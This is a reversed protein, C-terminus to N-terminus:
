EKHCHLALVWAANIVLGFRSTHSLAHMSFVSHVYLGRWTFSFLQFHRTAFTADCSERDTGPFWSEAPWSNLCFELIIWERGGRTAVGDSQRLALVPWWVRAFVCCLFDFFHDLPFAYFRSTSHWSLKTPDSQLMQQKPKCRCWFLLFDLSSMTVRLAKVGLSSVSCFRCQFKWTPNSGPSAMWWASPRLTSNWAGCQVVSCYEDSWMVAEGGLITQGPLMEAIDAYTAFFPSKQFNLYTWEHYVLPHPSVYTILISCATGRLSRPSRRLRTAQGFKSSQVLSRPTQATSSSTGGWRPREQFPAITLAFFLSLSTVDM